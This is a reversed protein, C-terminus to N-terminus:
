KNESRRDNIAPSYTDFQIFSPTEVLLLM